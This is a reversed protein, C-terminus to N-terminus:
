NDFGAPSLAISTEFTRTKEVQNAEHIQPWLRIEGDFSGTVLDGDILTMTAVTKQHGGFEM